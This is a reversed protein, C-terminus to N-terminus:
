VKCCGETDHCMIRRFNELKFLTHKPCFSGMLTCNKSKKTSLNFKVWNRMGNKFSCPWPKNLNQRETWHWSLYSRQIKKVWGEYVKSLFPGNFHCKWVKSQNPSLESFEEDYKFGCALNEKFKADSKLTM